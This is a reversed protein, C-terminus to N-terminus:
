RNPLNRQSSKIAFLRIQNDSIIGTVWNEKSQRSSGDLRPLGIVDRYGDPFNGAISTNVM